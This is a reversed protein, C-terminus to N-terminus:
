DYDITWNTRQTDFTIPVGPPGHDKLSSKWAWARTPAGYKQNAWLGTAKVSNFLMLISGKFTHTKGSWDEMYRFFNEVGGSYQNNKTGVNGAGIVARTEVSASAGPATKRKDATNNNADVWGDSLINIADCALLADKENVTNFNGQVYLPNCTTISLGISSTGPIEACNILRVAGNTDKNEVYIIGNLPAIGAEKMNAMDLNLVNVTIADRENYFTSTSDIHKTTNGVKYDLAVSAGGPMLKATNVGGSRTILLGAKYCFKQQLLPGSDTGVAPQILTSSPITEPWPLNMPSVGMDQDRVKDGWLQTAKDRWKVGSQNYKWDVNVGGQNDSVMVPNSGSMSGNWFRNTGQGLTKGSAPDRGYQIHSACTVYNNLDMNKGDAGFYLMKNSHIRGAEVFDAGPHLELDVASFIGFVYLPVYTITIDQQLSVGPHKYMKGRADNRRVRASVRYSVQRLTYGAWEQGAPVVGTHDFLTTILFGPDKSPDKGPVLEYNPVQAAVVAAKADDPGTVGAKKLAYNIEGFAKNLQFEAISFEETYLQYRDSMRRQSVANSLLGGAILAIVVVVGVAALLAYGRSVRGTCARTGGFRRRTRIM